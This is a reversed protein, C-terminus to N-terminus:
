TTSVNAVAEFDPCPAYIVFDYWEHGICDLRDRVLQIENSESNYRYVKVPLFANSVLFIDNGVVCSSTHCSFVKNTMLLTWQDSQIDFFEVCAQQKPLFRNNGISRFETSSHAGGVAYIKDGVAELGHGSRGEIMPKKIIWSDEKCNYAHFKNSRKPFEQFNSGGSVYMYNGHACAATSNFRLIENWESQKWTNQRISYEFFVERNAERYCYMGGFCYIYEGINIAYRPAVDGPYNEINLIRDNMIDYREAYPLMEKVTGGFLFLFNKVQAVAISGRDAPPFTRSRRVKEEEGHLSIMPLSWNRNEVGTPLVQVCPKSRPKNLIGDYLPQTLPNSHYDIAERVIALVEPSSLVLILPDKMITESLYTEEFLAFRVHKMLEVAGAKHEESGGYWSKISEYIQQETAVLLEDDFYELLSEKPLRRFSETCSVKVFNKLIFKHAMETVEQVNCKEGIELYTICTEVNLKEKIFQVCEAVMYNIQLMQATSLIVCLNEETLELKTTYMCNIISILGEYSVDRIEICTQQKEKFDSSLMAEFYPSLASLVARQVPIVRGEVVLELDSFHERQASLGSLLTLAREASTLVDHQVHILDGEAERQVECTPVNDQSLLRSLMARATEAGTEEVQGEM